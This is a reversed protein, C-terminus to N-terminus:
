NLLRLRSYKKSSKERSLQSVYHTHPSWIFNLLLILHINSINYKPLHWDCPSPLDPYLDFIQGSSDEFTHVVDVDRYLRDLHDQMQVFAGPARGAHTPRLSLRRATGCKGKELVRRPFSAKRIVM